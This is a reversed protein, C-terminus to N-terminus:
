RCAHLGLRLETEQLLIQLFHVRADLAVRKREVLAFAAGFAVVVLLPRVFDLGFSGRPMSTSRM